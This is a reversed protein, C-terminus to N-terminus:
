RMDGIPGRRRHVARPSSVDTAATIASCSRTNSSRAGTPTILTSSNQDTLINTIIDRVAAEEPLTGLGSPLQRSGRRHRRQETGAALVLAVDVKGYRGDALNM